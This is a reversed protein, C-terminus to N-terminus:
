MVLTERLVCCYDKRCAHKCNTVLLSFYERPWSCLVTYWTQGCKTAIDHNKVQVNGVDFNIIYDGHLIQSGAPKRSLHISPM